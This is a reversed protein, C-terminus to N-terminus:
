TGPIIDVSQMLTTRYGYELEIVLPSIYTATGTLGDFECFLTGTGGTLRLHQEVLPNCRLNRNQISVKLVKVFDIEDFRPGESYPSCKNLAAPKFVEGRGSNQIRIRFRTKGLAPDVEVTSIAIPAGQSGLGVSAPTCVKQQITASFPNPDICVNASATTRYNYCITAQLRAPYKDIGKNKLSAIRANFSATDKGGVPTFQDRPQIDPMRIGTTPIGTIISPDFGSLYVADGPGGVRATGKNELELTASLPETDFVRSPPLNQLFVANIGETGTRFQQAQVAEKSAPQLQTCSALLLIFVLVVKRTM